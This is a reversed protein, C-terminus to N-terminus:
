TIVLHVIHEDCFYHFEHHIMKLSKKQSMKLGKKMSIKQSMKMSMKLSTNLSIKLTRNMSSKLNNLSLTIRLCMIITERVDTRTFLVEGNDKPISPVMLHKSQDKVYSQPINSKVEDSMNFLNRLFVKM